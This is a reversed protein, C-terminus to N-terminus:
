AEESVGAEAEAKRKRWAAIGMGILGPLLAPTPVVTAGGGTPGNFNSIIFIGGASSSLRTGFGFSDGFAVNFSASGSQNFGGAVNTLQTFAGNLVYGFLSTSPTGSDISYSWNFTVPGTGAATTLFNLEGDGPNSGLGGAVFISTPAGAFGTYTGGLNTQTLSFNAPAYPSSFGAAQAPDSLTLSLSSFAVGALGIFSAKTFTSVSM